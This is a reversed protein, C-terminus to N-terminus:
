EETGDYENIIADIAAEVGALRDATTEQPTPEEPVIEECPVMSTIKGDEDAEIAVFPGFEEWTPRFEETVEAWGPLIYDVGDLSAHANNWEPAIKVITM